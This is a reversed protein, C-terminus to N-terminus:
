MKQKLTYSKQETVNNNLEFRNTETWFPIDDLSLPKEEVRVGLAQLRTDLDATDIGAEDAEARTVLPRFKIGKSNSVIPFFLEKLTGSFGLSSLATSINRSYNGLDPKFLESPKNKAQELLKESAQGAQVKKVKLVGSVGNVLLTGDDNHTFRYEAIFWNRDNSATKVRQDNLQKGYIAIAKDAEDVIKKIAPSYEPTEKGAIICLKNVQANHTQGADNQNQYIYENINWESGEIVDNYKWAPTNSIDTLEKNRTYLTKLENVLLIYSKNIATVDLTRSFQSNHQYADAVMEIIDTARENLAKALAYDNAKRGAMNLSQAYQIVSEIVTGDTIGLLKMLEPKTNDKM